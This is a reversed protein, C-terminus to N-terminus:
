AAIEIPMRARIEGATAAIAYVGCDAHGYARRLALPLNQDREATDPNVNTAACREIRRMIGLRANGIALQRGVWDFEAWPDAEVYLNGRFRLPHLEAGVLAGLARLTALNIISIHPAETDAFSQGGAGPPFGSAIEVLRPRGTESGLLDAFFAELAARDQPDRLNGSAVMRGRRQLAIRGSDPDCRLDLEALVADNARQFFNGRRIWHPPGDFAASPRALAFQRDYPLPRGPAIRVSDLPEPSLGKVPYRYIHVLRATM